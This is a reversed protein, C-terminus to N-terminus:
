ITYSVALLSVVLLLPSCVALLVTALAIDLVRKGIEYGRAALPSRPATAPAPVLALAPDSAPESAPAASLRPRLIGLAHGIQRSTV